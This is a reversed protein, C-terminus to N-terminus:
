GATSLVGYAADILSQGRDNLLLGGGHRNMAYGFALGKDPDAFGISGGLGVHGFAGEGILLSHGEAPHSTRNDMRLMFGTSFRTPILLTQDQGVSQPKQMAAVRKTSFLTENGAALPAFLGNLARANAIGGHGGLQAAHFATHNPSGTGINAFALAQLSSRDSLIAEAFATRPADDQPKFLRVPAVRDELDAPLGIWFDLGLPIAIDNRFFSGLSQGSVRRVIEGVLWGFSTMHYGHATGPTWFSAQAELREVMAPWDYADGAALPDRVAAMGAQHNLLMSVTIQAKGNAAFEPWYDAVPADLDLLGRQVLLHACLATAAKTCSFVVCLTDREWRRQREADRYGGWLDVVTEGGVSLAVSAGLEGRGSFNEEFAEAVARFAPDCYGDISVDSM